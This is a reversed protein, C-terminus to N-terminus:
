KDEDNKMLPKLFKYVGFANVIISMALAILLFIPRTGFQNDLYKGGLVFLIAIISIFIGIQTLLSLAYAFKFNKNESMILM